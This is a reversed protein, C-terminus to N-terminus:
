RRGQSGGASGKGRGGPPAPRQCRAARSGARAPERVPHPVPGGTPATATVISPSVVNAAEVAGPARAPVSTHLSCPTGTGPRDDAHLLRKRDGPTQNRGTVHSLRTM